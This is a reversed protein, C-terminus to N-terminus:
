YFKKLFFVTCHEHECNEASVTNSHSVYDIVCPIPAVSPGLKMILVHLVTLFQLSSYYSQLLITTVLMFGQHFTM